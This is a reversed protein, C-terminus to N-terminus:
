NKMESLNSKKQILINYILAIKSNKRVLNASNKNEDAELENLTIIWFFFFLCLFNGPERDKLKYINERNDVSMHIDVGAVQNHLGTYYKIPFIKDTGIFGYKQQIEPHFDPLFNTSAACGNSWLM